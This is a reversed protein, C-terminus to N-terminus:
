NEYSRQKKDLLFEFKVYIPSDISGSQKETLRASKFSRNRFRFGSSIDQAAPMCLNVPYYYPQTISYKSM